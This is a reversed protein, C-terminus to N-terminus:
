MGCSCNQVQLVHQALACIIYVAYFTLCLIFVFLQNLEVMDRQLDELEEIMEKREFSQQNIEFAREVSMDGKCQFCVFKKERVFKAQQEAGDQICQYYSTVLMEFVPTGKDEPDLLGVATSKRNCKLISLIV